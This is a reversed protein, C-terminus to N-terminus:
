SSSPSRLSSQPLCAAPPSLRSPLKVIEALAHDHSRRKAPGCNPFNLSSLTPLHAARPLEIDFIWRRDSLHKVRATITTASLESQIATSGGVGSCYTRFTPPSARM